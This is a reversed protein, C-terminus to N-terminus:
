RGLGTYGLESLRAATARLNESVQAAEQIRARLEKHFQAATLEGRDLRTTLETRETTLAERRQVLRQYEALLSNMESKAAPKPVEITAPRAAPVAQKPVGTRM